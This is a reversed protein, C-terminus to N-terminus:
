ICAAKLKAINNVMVSIYDEYKLEDETLGELPNLTQTIAGTESAILKSIEPSVLEEYFITTIKYENVYNIIKTIDSASPEQDPSLGDVYIQNLGYRNCFYGFAAHSVVINKNTFSSTTQLFSADLSKFLYSADVFNEEYDAKNNPDLTILYNKINQMEMIANIPNLWVHPDDTGNIQEKSIGETVTYTKSLLTDPLSSTWNEMNIGNVFIADADTMGSITGSTPSYDHPESGAPTVNIVTGHDKLIRATFDYIPYFSTYIKLGTDAPAAENCSSLPLLLLASTLVIITKKM